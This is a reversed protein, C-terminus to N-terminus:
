SAPRTSRATSSRTGARREDLARRRQLVRQRLRQPEAGVPEAGGGPVLLVLSSPGRRALLAAAPRRPARRPPAPSISTTSMTLDERLLDATEAARRSAHRLARDRARPRLGLHAARRLPHRHRLRERRDLVALEVRARRRRTSRTCRRRARRQDARAHPRLRARGHAHQRLLGERGRVGFTLRRNAQTNAVATLALALANAGPRRRAPRAASSSCRTPSRRACASPWSARSARAPSCGPSGACTTSRPACSTSARTPTTSGTSRCRTSACARRAPRARAARHRLVVGRRAGRAAAPPRRRRPGGQLRVARRLLARRADAHLLRNYARSILERKPGRVVRAGRRWARASRSTATAPSWRRSSRCCRRAPRDVPRRGHLLPRRRRQAVLRRAARPRPGERAARPGRRRAPRRRARRRDRPTEDTSANDAIVIRWRLAARSTLHDHLRRISGPLAGQENYVPVVVDIRERTPTPEPSALDPVPELFASPM